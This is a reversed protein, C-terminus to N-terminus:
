HKRNMFILGFVICLAVVVVIAIIIYMKKKDAAEQTAQAEMQLKLTQLEMESQSGNNATNAAAYMGAGAGSLVGGVLSMWDFANAKGDNPFKEPFLFRVFEEFREPYDSQLQQMEAISPFEGEVAIPTKAFIALVGNSRAQSRKLLELLITNQKM